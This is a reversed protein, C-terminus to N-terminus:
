LTFAEAAAWNKSPQSVTTGEMKMSIQQRLPGYLAREISTDPVPIFYPTQCL